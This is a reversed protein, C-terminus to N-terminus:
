IEKYFPDESTEYYDPAECGNYWCFEVLRVYDMNIESDLQQFIPKFKEKESDYLERIKGYCGDSDWEYELVYDIFPKNTPSLQFKNVTAYDFIEPFTEEIYYGFDDRVDKDPFKTQIKKIIEEFNLKDQPIRLVKERVYTSM